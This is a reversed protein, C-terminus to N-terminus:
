YEGFYRFCLFAPAGNVACAILAGIVELALGRKEESTKKHELGEFM